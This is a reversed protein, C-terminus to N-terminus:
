PLGRAVLVSLQVSLGRLELMNISCIFHPLWPYMKERIRELVMALELLQDDEDAMGLRLTILIALNVLHDWVMPHFKSAFSPFM